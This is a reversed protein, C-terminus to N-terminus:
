RIEFPSIRASITLWRRGVSLKGFVNKSFMLPSRRSASKQGARSRAPPQGKAAAWFSCPEILTRSPWGNTNIQMLCPDTLIQAPGPMRLGGGPFLQRALFGVERRQQIIAQNAADPEAALEPEHLQWYLRKVCQCGAVFKSKSIRMIM